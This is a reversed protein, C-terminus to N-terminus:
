DKKSECADCLVRIWGGTRRTGPAGCGECVKYSASEAENTLDFMEDTGRSLYFRLGGFKEKVQIANYQAREGEPLQGILAELKASLERILPEWGDSCEFGFCMLTNRPDGRRGSYLMPFDRVLAEDLEQRM